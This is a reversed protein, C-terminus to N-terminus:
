ESLLNPEHVEVVWRKDFNVNVAKFLRLRYELVRVRPEIFLVSVDKHSQPLVSVSDLHDVHIQCGLLTDKVGRIFISPLDLFLVCQLM